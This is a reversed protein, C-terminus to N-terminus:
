ILAYIEEFIAHASVIEDFAKMLNALWDDRM